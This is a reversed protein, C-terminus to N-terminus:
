AKPRALPHSRTPLLEDIRAAPWDEALKQLTDTLWLWPNLGALTCTAFLTYFTAAREAGADNGAFLYNKRGLAVPRLIREAGNNDLPLRGDHLFRTLARWNKVCYAVARFFAGGPTEALLTDVLWRAFRQILEM